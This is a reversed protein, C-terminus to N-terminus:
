VVAIPDLTIKEAFVKGTACPLCLFLRGCELDLINLFQFHKIWFDLCHTSMYELLFLLVLYYFVPM